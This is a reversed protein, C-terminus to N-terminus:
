DLEVTEFQAEANLRTAWVKSSAQHRSPSFQIIPGIGLDLDKITHLADIFSETTLEPGAKRLGEVFCEDM